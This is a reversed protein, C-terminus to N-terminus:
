RTSTPTPPRSTGRPRASVRSTPAWALRPPASPAERSCAVVLCDVLPLDPWGSDWCPWRARSRIRGSFGLSGLGALGGFSAAPGFGLLRKLLEGTAMGGIGGDGGGGGAAGAALGALAGADAGGGGFGALNRNIQFQNYNSLTADELAKLASLKAVAESIDLNAEATVDRGGWASMASNITTFNVMTSDIALGAEAVGEARGWTALTENVAAMKSEFDAINAGIDINPEKTTLIDIQGSVVQVKALFDAIDLQVIAILPPLDGADPM